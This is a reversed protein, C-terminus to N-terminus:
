TIHDMQCFFTIHTMCLSNCNLLKETSQCNTKIISIDNTSMRKESGKLSFLHIIKIKIKKRLHHKTIQQKHNLQITQHGMFMKQDTAPLYTIQKPSLGHLITKTQFYM